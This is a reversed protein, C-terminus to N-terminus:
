DLYEAREKLLKRTRETEKSLDDQLKKVEDNLRGIQEDRENISKDKEDLRRDREENEKRNEQEAREYEQNASNLEDCLSTAVSSRAFALNVKKMVLAESFESLESQYTETCKEAERRSADLKADIDILEKNSIDIDEEVKAMILQVQKLWTPEETLKKPCNCLTWIIGDFKGSIQEKIKKRLESVRMTLPDNPDRLRQPDTHAWYNDM